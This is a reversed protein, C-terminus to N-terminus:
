AWKYELLPDIGDVPSVPLGALLASQEAAALVSVIYAGQEGTPYDLNNLLAQWVRATTAVVDELPMQFAGVLADSGYRTLPLLRESPLRHAFTVSGSLDDMSIQGYRGSIVSTLGHGQDSGFEM